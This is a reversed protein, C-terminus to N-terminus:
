GLLSKRGVPKDSLRALGFLLTGAAVLAFGANWFRDTRELTAQALMATRDGQDMSHGLSALAATARDGFPAAAALAEGAGAISEARVEDRAEIWAAQYMAEAALATRLSAEEEGTQVLERLAIMDAGLAARAQKIDRDLLLKADPAAPRGLQATLQTLGDLDAIALRVTDHRVMPESRAADSRGNFSGLLLLLSGAALCTTAQGPSVFSAAIRYPM